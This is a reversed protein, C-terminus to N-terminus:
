ITSALEDRVRQAVLSKKDDHLQNAIFREIHEPDTAVREASIRETWTRIDDPENAVIVGIGQERAALCVREVDDVTAVTDKLPVHLLLFSRNAARRHALAEYVGQVSIATVPKVEFTVVDLHRGAVFTFARVEVTTIDPRSWTGGTDKKGAFATIQAAVKEAGRQPSWETDIVQLMPKYLSSEAPYRPDGLEHHASRPADHSTLHVTGGQGPGKQLLKADLLIQRADLYSEHDGELGVAKEPTKNTLSPGQNQLVQLMWNAYFTLNVTSTM